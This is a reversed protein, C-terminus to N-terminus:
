FGGFVKYTDRAIIHTGQIRIIAFTESTPEKGVEPPGKSNRQRPILTTRPCDLHQLFKPVQVEANAYKPANPKLTHLDKAEFV